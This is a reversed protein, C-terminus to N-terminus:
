KEDAEGKFADLALQIDGENTIRASDIEQLIKKKIEKSAKLKATMVKLKWVNRVSERFDQDTVMDEVTGSQAKTTMRPMKSNVLIRSKWFLFGSIAIGGLSAILLWFLSTNVSQRFANSDKIIANTALHMSANLQEADSKTLYREPISKFRENTQEELSIIDAKSINKALLLANENYQKLLNIIETNVSSNVLLVLHQYQTFNNNLEEKTAFTNNITTINLIEADEFDFLLLLSESTMNTRNALDNLILTQETTLAFSPIAIVILFIM